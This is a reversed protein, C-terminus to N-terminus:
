EHLRAAPTPDAAVRTQPRPWFLAAMVIAYLIAGLVYLIRTSFLEPTSAPLPSIGLGFLILFITLGGGFVQGTSAGMAARGGFLLSVLLLIFFLLWLEPRLEFLTFALSAAVGGLLNVLMLGFAARRTMAPELQSLLSAVTVPIVMATALRPDVLCLSVVALLISASALAQRIGQRGDSPPPPLPDAHEGAPDPVLAHAAWALLMGGCVAKALTLVISEGLDHQLIDLMPVAIAIILVLAPAAGGKGQAQAWFCSCYFLWLLPLLVLPRHGLLGTFVVLLAGVVSILAVTGLGQRLPPPRLSALLFQTAFLPSLFPLASGALLALSLGCAIALAVRLGQRKRRVLELRQVETSM